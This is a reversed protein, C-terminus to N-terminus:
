EYTEYGKLTGDPSYREERIRKGRDDYISIWYFTMTGDARYGEYRTQKGDDDYYFLFYESLTDDPDYRRQEAKLGRGDYIFHDYFQVSGDPLYFRNRQPRGQEDLDVECYNELEFTDGYEGGELWVREYNSWGIRRGQEDYRYETYGTITDGDNHYNVRRIHDGSDVYSGSRVEALKDAVAPDNGTAEMARELIEEAAEYGGQRIAVDALGMWAGVYSPDLGNATEYDARAAALHEATEGLGIYADGRGVYPSPQDPALGVASLFSTLAQAWDKSALADAGEQYLEEWSTGDLRVRVRGLPVLDSGLALLHVQGASEDVSVRDGEVPSADLMRGAGDYSACWLSAGDPVLSAAERSAGDTREVTVTREEAMASVTLMACVALTMLLIRKKM